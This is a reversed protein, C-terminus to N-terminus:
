PEEIRDNVEIICVEAQTTASRRVVVLVGHCQCILAILEDICNGRLRM